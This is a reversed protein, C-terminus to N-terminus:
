KTNKQAYDQYIDEREDQLYEKLFNAPQSLSLGRIEDEESRKEEELFTILVKQSSKYNVKELLKIKGNEYIGKVTEM